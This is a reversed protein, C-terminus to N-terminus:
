FVSLIDARTGHNPSLNLLLSVLHLFSSSPKFLHPICVATVYSVIVSASQKVTVTVSVSTYVTNDSQVSSSAVASSSSSSSPPSTYTQAPM